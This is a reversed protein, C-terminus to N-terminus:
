IQRRIQNSTATSHNHCYHDISALAGILKIQPLVCAFSRNEQTCCRYLHKMPWHISYLPRRDKLIVERRRRDVNRQTTQIGAAIKSAPPLPVVALTSWPSGIRTLMVERTPLCENKLRSRRYGITAGNQSTSVVSASSMTTIYCTWISTKFTPTAFNFFRFVNKRSKGGFDDRHQHSSVVV